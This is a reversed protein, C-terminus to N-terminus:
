KSYASIENKHRDRYKKSKDLSKKHNLYYYKSSRDRKKM